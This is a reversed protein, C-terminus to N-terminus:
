LKAPYLRAYGAIGTALDIRVTSTIVTMFSDM